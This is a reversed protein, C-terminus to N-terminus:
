MVKSECRRGIEQLASIYVSPAPAAHSGGEPQAIRGTSARNAAVEEEPIFMNNM